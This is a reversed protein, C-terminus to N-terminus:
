TTNLTYPEPNIVNQFTWLTVLSPAWFHGFNLIPYFGSMKLLAAWLHGFNQTTYFKLMNPRRKPWFLAELLQFLPTPLVRVDKLPRGM